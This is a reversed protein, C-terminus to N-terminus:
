KGALVVEGTKKNIRISFRYKFDYCDNTCMFWIANFGILYYDETEEEKHTVMESHLHHYTGIVGTYILLKVFSNWDPEEELLKKTVFGMSEDGRRLISADLYTLNLYDLNPYFRFAYERNLINTDLQFLKLKNLQKFGDINPVNQFELDVVKANKPLTDVRCYIEYLDKLDKQVYNILQDHDVYMYTPNSSEIKQSFVVSSLLLFAITFYTKQIM